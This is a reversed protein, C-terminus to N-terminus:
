TFEPMYYLYMILKVPLPLETLSDNPFNQLIVIRCMNQLSMATPLKYVQLFFYIEHHLITIYYCIDIQYSKINYLYWTYHCSKLTLRRKEIAYM